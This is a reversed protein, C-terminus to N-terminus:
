QNRIEQLYEEVEGDYPIEIKAINDTIVLYRPTKSAINFITDLKVIDTDDFVFVIYKGVRKISYEFDPPFITEAAILLIVIIVTLVLEVTLFQLSVVEDPTVIARFLTSCFIAGVLVAILRFLVTRKKRKFYREM